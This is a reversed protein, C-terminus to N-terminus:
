FGEIKSLDAIGDLMSAIEQLLGLRSEKLKEDEAMVLVQDFFANIPDILPTFSKVFTEISDIEVAIAKQTLDFLDKEVKEVLVSKDATFITEQSRTIRVCRAYAPLLVDWDKEAM